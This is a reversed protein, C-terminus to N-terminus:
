IYAYNSNKHNIEMTENYEDWTENPSEYLNDDNTMNHGYNFYEYCYEVYDCENYKGNRTCEDLYLLVDKFMNPNYSTDELVDASLFTSTTDREDDCWNPSM